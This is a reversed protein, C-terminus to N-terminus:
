RAGEMGYDKVRPTQRGESQGRERCPGEWWCGPEQRVWPGVTGMVGEDCGMRPVDASLRLGEM